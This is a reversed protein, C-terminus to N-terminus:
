KAVVITARSMAQVVLPGPVRLEFSDGRRLLIDGRAPTTTLWVTGRRVKIVQAGADSNLRVVEAARLHLTRGVESPSALATRGCLKYYSTLWRNVAGLWQRLTAIVDREPKRSKPLVGVESHGPKGRAIREAQRQEHRERLQRFLITQVTNIRM